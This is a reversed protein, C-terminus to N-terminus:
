PPTKILSYPTISIQPTQSQGLDTTSCSKGTTPSFLFGARCDTPKTESICKKGTMPNFIFGPLCTTDLEKVIPTPAVIPNVVVEEQLLNNSSSSGGGGGSSGGGTSYSFDLDKNIVSGEQFIPHTIPTRGGSETNSLHSSSQFTFTIIGSGEAVLLKKAISSIYGYSGSDDVTSEGAITDGYYARVLTGEPAKNNNITVSGYFAMPFSPFSEAFSITPLTLLLILISAYKKM